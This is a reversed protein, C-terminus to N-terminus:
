LTLNYHEGGPAPPAPKTAPPPAQAPPWKQKTVMAVRAELARERRRTVGLLGPLNIRGM